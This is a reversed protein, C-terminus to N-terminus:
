MMTKKKNHLIKYMIYSRAAVAQAKLAEESFSIPMEGAVVGMIYEELIIKEVVNTSSRYVRVTTNKSFKFEKQLPEVIFVFIIFSPILIFILSFLLIKKM